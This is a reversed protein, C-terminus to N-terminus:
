LAQLLSQLEPKICVEAMVLEDALPVSQQVTHQLATDLLGAGPFVQPQVGTLGGPQCLVGAKRLGDIPADGALAEAATWLDGVRPTGAGPKETQLPFVARGGSTFKGPKRSFMTLVETM